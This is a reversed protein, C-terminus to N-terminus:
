SMKKTAAWSQLFSLRLTMIMASSNKKENVAYFANKILNLLVRGIEKPIINVAGINEDFETKTAAGITGNSFKHLHYTREPIIDGYFGDLLRSRESCYNIWEKRNAGQMPISVQKEESQYFEFMQRGVWTDQLKLVFHDAVLKKEPVRIDKIAYWCEAQDSHEEHIYISSTELEEVGLLGMEYRMVQAVETLEEPQQMALARTRVRELTSEIELERNKNELEATRRRVADRLELNEKSLTEFSVTEGEGTRTDPLSGHQQVVKWQNASQRLLTSIRIKSYFTWEGNVLIYVDSYEHVLVLNNLSSLHIRRNRFESKWEIEKLSRQLWSSADQLSNIVESEATGILRYDADM